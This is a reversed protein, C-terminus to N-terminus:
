ILHSETQKLGICFGECFFFYCTISEHLVSDTVKKM